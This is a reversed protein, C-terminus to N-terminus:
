ILIINMIVNSLLKCTFLITVCLSDINSEKENDRFSFILVINEASIYLVLIGTKFENLVYIHLLHFSAKLISYSYFKLKFLQLLIQLLHPVSFYNVTDTKSSLNLFRQNVPISFSNANHEFLLNFLQTSKFQLLLLVFNPFLLFYQLNRLLFM